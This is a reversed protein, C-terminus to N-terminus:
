GCGGAHGDDSAALAVTAPLEPRPGSPKDGRLRRVFADLRDVGWFKERGCIFFPVGFVDDGCVAMLARTGAAIVTPDDAARALREGDMGLRKGIAAVVAPDSIDQGHEWRARSTAVAFERGARSTAAVLYALHSVEWRPSHDVPWKVNLGREGALRRVDGLVYFHKERSMPAYPFRGGAAVLLRETAPGPEWCPRWDIDEALERHFTTLDHLALWSYPSRLNFYLCPRSSTTAM